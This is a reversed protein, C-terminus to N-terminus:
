LISTLAREMESFNKELVAELISAKSSFHYYFTGQAVGVKRVIDSVATNDYGNKLFLEGAAGVLEERRKEPEKAVRPTM